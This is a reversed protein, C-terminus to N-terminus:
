GNYPFLRKSDLIDAVAVDPEVFLVGINPIPVETLANFQSVIRPIATALYYIHTVSPERFCHSSHMSLILQDLAPLFLCLLLGTMVAFLRLGQVHDKTVDNLTEVAEEEKRAVNSNVDHDNVQTGNVSKADM